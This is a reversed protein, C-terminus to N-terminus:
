CCNARHSNGIWYKKGSQKKKAMSVHVIIAALLESKDAIAVIQFFLKKKMAIGTITQVILPFVFYVPHLMKHYPTADVIFLLKHIPNM